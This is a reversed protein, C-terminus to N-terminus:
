IHGPPRRTVRSVAALGGHGAARAESAAFLRRQREDLRPLITANRKQLKQLSDEDIMGLAVVGWSRLSDGGGRQRALVSEAIRQRARLPRSHGGQNGAPLPCLPGRGLSRDVIAELGVARNHLHAAQGDEVAAVHGPRIVRFRKAAWRARYPWGELQIMDRASYLRRRGAPYHALWNHCRFKMRADEGRCDCLAVM